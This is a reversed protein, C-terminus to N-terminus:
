GLARTDCAGNDALARGFCLGSEKEHFAGPRPFCRLLQDQAGM